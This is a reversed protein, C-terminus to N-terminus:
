EAFTHTRGMAVHSVRHGHCRYPTMRQELPGGALIYGLRTLFAPKGRGPLPPDVPLLFPNAKGEVCTGCEEQRM